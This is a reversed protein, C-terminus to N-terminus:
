ADDHTERLRDLALAALIIGGTVIKQVWNPLGVQTCGSRITAIVLAGLLSGYVTGRGGSLSAGGIVTAAIIDLELGEAVTPDGVTLRSFQMLGATGAFFGGLAFVALRIRSPSIGALRAAEPNAGVAIVNRGFVTRQLVLSALVAAAILLWVGVPVLMFKKEIPLRALLSALWTLPADIKQEGAMGTAIGRFILLSGLTAIFPSLRLQTILLGNFTGALLGVGVGIGAAAVPDLKLASLCWAIVVTVLAVLSGVSLDIMRAVVIFTMGIAGFGVIAVQRAITEFNDRSAFDPGRWVAFLGVLALWTIILGALARFGSM